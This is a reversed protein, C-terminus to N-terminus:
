PSEVHEAEEGRTHIFIHRIKAKACVDLVAVVHKHRCSEDARIIVVPPTGPALNYLRELRDLLDQPSMAQRNVSLTGDAAINVVIQHIRSSAEEAAEAQPLTIGIEQEVQAMAYTVVFFILLLFVIDIMPTIQFEPRIEESPSFKM